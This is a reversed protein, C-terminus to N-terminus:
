DTLMMLYAVSRAKFADSILSIPTIRRTIASFIPDIVVDSSGRVSQGVLVMDLSFDVPSEPLFNTVESLIVNMYGDGLTALM